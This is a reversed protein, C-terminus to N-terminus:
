THTSNNKQHMKRAQVVVSYEPINSLWYTSSWLLCHDSRM